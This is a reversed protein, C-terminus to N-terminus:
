QGLSGEAEAALFAERDALMAEYEAEDLWTGYYNIEGYHEPATPPEYPTSLVALIVFAVLALGLIVGCILEEITQRIRQKKRRKDMIRLYVESHEHM